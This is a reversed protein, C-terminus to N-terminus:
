QCRANSYRTSSLGLRNCAPGRCRSNSAQSPWSNEHRRPQHPPPTFDWRRITISGRYLLSFSYRRRKKATLILEEGTSVRLVPAHLSCRGKSDMQWKLDEGMVIKDERYIAEREVSSIMREGRNRWTNLRPPKKQILVVVATRLGLSGSAGRM